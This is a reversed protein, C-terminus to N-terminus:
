DELEGYSSFTAAFFIRWTEGARKHLTRRAILKDVDVDARIRALGIRRPTAAQFDRQAHDRPFHDFGTSHQNCVNGARAVIARGTACVFPSLSNISIPSPFLRPLKGSRVASM